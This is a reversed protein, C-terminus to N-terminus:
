VAQLVPIGSRVHGLFLPRPGTMTQQELASVIQALM